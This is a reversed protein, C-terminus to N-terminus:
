QQKPGHRQLIGGLVLALRAFSRAVNRVLGDRADDTGAEGGLGDHHGVDKAEELYFSQCGREGTYM